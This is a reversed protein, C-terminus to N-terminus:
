IWQTSGLYVKKLKELKKFSFRHTRETLEGTEVKEQSGLCSLFYDVCDVSHDGLVGLRTTRRQEGILNM